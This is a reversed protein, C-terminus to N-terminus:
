YTGQRDPHRIGGTTGVAVVADTKNELHFDLLRDLEDYNVSFDDKMPTVLAVASGEFILPKM